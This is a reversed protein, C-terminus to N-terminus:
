ESRLQRSSEFALTELGIEAAAQRFEARDDILLCRSPEERIQRLVERFSAPDNKRTHLEFSYFRRQFMALVPHVEEINIAWERGHDWSLYLPYSTGLAAM